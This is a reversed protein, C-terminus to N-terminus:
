AKLLRIEFVMLQSLVESGTPLNIGTLCYTKTQTSKRSMEYEIQMALPHIGTPSTKKKPMNKSM